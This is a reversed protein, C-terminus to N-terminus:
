KSRLIDVIRFLKRELSFVKAIFCPPFDFCFDWHEPVSFCVRPLSFVAEHQKSVSTWTLRPASSGCSIESTPSKM